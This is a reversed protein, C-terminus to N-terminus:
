PAISPALLNTLPSAIAPMTMRTMLKAPPMTMPMVICPMLM